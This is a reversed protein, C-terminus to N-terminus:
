EPKMPPKSPDDWLQRHSGDCRPLKDSNQCTCWAFNMPMTDVDVIEPRKDSGGHSGDCFPANGTQGCTCIAHNGPRLEVVLPKAHPKNTDAM